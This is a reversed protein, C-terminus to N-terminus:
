ELFQLAGDVLKKKEDPSLKKTASSVVDVVHANRRKILSVLQETYKDLFWRSATVFLLVDKGALVPETELWDRVPEKMSFAMVSAYIVLSDYSSFDKTGTTSAPSEDFEYDGNTMQSRFLTLWPDIKKNSEEYVFLVKKPENGFVGGGIILVLFVCLFIRKM